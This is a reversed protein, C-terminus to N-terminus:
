EQEPRKALQARLHQARDLLQTIQARLRRYAFAASAILGILVLMIVLFLLLPTRIIIELWSDLSPM